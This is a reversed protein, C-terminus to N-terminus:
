LSKKWSDEHQYGILIVCSLSHNKNGLRQGRKYNVGPHWQLETSIRLLSCLCLYVTITCHPWISYEYFSIRSCVTMLMQIFEKYHLPVRWPFYLRKLTSWSWTKKEENKVWEQLIQIVKCLVWGFLASILRLYHLDGWGSTCLLHSHLCLFACGKRLAACLPQMNHCHFTKGVRSSFLLPWKLFVPYLSHLVVIGLSSSSPRVQTGWFRSMIISVHIQSHSTILLCWFFWYM